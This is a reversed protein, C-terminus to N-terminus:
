CLIYGHTVIPSFARVSIGAGQEFRLAHPTHGEPGREPKSANRAHEVNERTTM